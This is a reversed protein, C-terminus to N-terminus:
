GIRDRGSRRLVALQQAAPRGSLRQALQRTVVADRMGGETAVEPPWLHDLLQLQGLLQDPGLLAGRLRAPPRLLLGLTLSAPM